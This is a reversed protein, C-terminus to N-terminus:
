ALSDLWAEAAAKTPFVQKRIGTTNAIRGAQLELVARGPIVEAVAKVGAAMVIEQTKVAIGTWEASMIQLESLDVLVTFGPTMKNAAAHWYQLYADEGELEKWFGKFTWYMRNKLLDVKLVYREANVLTQM